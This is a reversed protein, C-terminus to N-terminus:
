GSRGKSLDVKSGNSSALLSAGRSPAEAALVKVIAADRSRARRKAEAAAAQYALQEAKLAEVASAWNASM